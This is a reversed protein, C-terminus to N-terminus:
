VLQEEAVAISTTEKDEEVRDRLKENKQASLVKLKEPSRLSGNMKFTDLLIQLEQAMTSLQQTSASMEEASSAAQQTVENVNEIAKM